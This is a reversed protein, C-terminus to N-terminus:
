RAAPGRARREARADEILMAAFLIGGCTIGVDAMNFTWFRWHGVGFDIFDVVGLDSRWRDLLNGLAGGTILGLAAGRVRDTASTHRYYYALVVLMIITLASFGIRSASGLTMGMAGGSNHTLSFRLFTGIVNLPPEAWLNHEAIRKTAYDVALLVGFLFWFWRAKPTGRM